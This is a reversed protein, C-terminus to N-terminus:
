RAQPAVFGVQGGRLNGPATYRCVLYDWQRSARIACGVRTTTPWIMQTYHGVDAWSGSRSVEPFIGPRFMAKESAWHAVMVEPAFTGRTGMWLNEGQDQRQDPRSHGWRDSAALEAAYADAAAALARDWALPALGVAARERNHADLLRKEVPLGAALAPAALAAALCFAAALSFKM